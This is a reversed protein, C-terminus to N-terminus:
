SQEDHVFKSMENNIPVLPNHHSYDVKIESQIAQSPSANTTVENLINRIKHEIVYLISTSRCAGGNSVALYSIM